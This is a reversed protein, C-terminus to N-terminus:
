VFCGAQLSGSRLSPPLGHPDGGVLDVAPVRLAHSCPRRRTRSAPKSRSPADGSFLIAPVHVLVDVAQQVSSDMAEMTDNWIPVADPLSIPARLSARSSCM